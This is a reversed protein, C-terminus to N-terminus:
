NNIATTIKTQPNCAKYSLPTPHQSKKKQNTIRELHKHLTLIYVKDHLHQITTELEYGTVIHLATNKYQKCNQLTRQQYLLHGYLPHIGYYQVQAQGM